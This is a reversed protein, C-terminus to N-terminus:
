KETWLKIAIGTARQPGGGRGGERAPEGKGPRRGTRALPDQRRSHGFRTHPVGQHALGGARSLPRRHGRPAASLQYGVGRRGQQRTTRTGCTSGEEYAIGVVQLKAGYKKQLAVLRPISKICPGCWTGWFDLLVVDAEIDRFRVPRGGLDYMGFDVIRGRRSDFQCFEVEPRAGRDSKDPVPRRLESPSRAGTDPIIGTITDSENLLNDPRYVTPRPKSAIPDAAPTNTSLRDLDGWTLKRKGVPAQHPPQPEPETEAQRPAQTAEIAPPIEEEVTPKKSAAAPGPGPTASEEAPMGSLLSNPIRELLPDPREQTKPDSEDRAAEPESANTPAPNANPGAQVPVRNAIELPAPSERRGLVPRPTEVDASRGSEAGDDGLSSEEEAAVLSGAARERLRLRQPKEPIEPEGGTEGPAIQEYGAVRNIRKAPRREIAPPLPNREDDATAAAVIRAPGEEPYPSATEPMPEYNTRSLGDKPLWGGRQPLPKGQYMPGPAAAPVPEDDAPPIDEDNLRTKRKVPEPEDLDQDDQDISRDSVRDVKSGKDQPDVDARRIEHLSIDINHNGAAVVTRGVLTEEGDRLEAIVTYKKGSTLGELTFGGSRDTTDRVTQGGNTGAYAVRVRANPIPEGDADVVRGSIRESSFRRRPLPPERDAVVTAGPAGTTVPLTKDGIAAITRLNPSVKANDVPVTSCGAGWCYFVGLFVMLPTNRPM